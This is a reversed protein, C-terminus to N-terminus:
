PFIISWILAFEVSFPIALSSSVLLFTTPKFGLVAFSKEVRLITKLIYQYLWRETYNKM